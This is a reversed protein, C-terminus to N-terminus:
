MVKDIRRAEQSSRTNGPTTELLVALGEFEDLQPLVLSGARVHVDPASSGFSAIVRWNGPPLAIEMNAFPPHAFSHVVCLVRRGDLAVRRLAQWGGPHRWSEGMSSFLRSRGQAIVPAAARYFEQAAKLRGMQGDALAAVDGSIAMRGLFTAALSYDLRKVSDSQRLVAWVQTQRPLVVKHLNAAIVPIEPTEHADSFSGMACLAQMSPELRHGGSSCNEIVVEPLQRRIEGFFEQVAAIHQRLHEGPGDGRGAPGDVGAGLTDNYDVKLYGFGNDRLLGIVKGTLYERTWPDRFDWFRRPGVRLVQGDRRLHHDTQNWAQSGPNCVEFEFWIGPILGEARIADCTAKLGAPFARRNVLWDGNQQFGDGPREAWGDDIVLYRTGIEKLRRATAVVLDHTPNGWSSCWENFVTPLGDECAPQLGAAENQASTLAACVEQVDGEVCALVAQPTTFSEGPGVAKWWHGFERDALGGSVCLEDGRRFVEMQWSSAIGLQAGWTVGAVADELAVMPFFAQVPMSGLHGFRECVIGHGTWSRELHASEISRSEVRGEASWASRIRHMRLRGPADAPHFPTVGSFSFSALLDLIQPQRSLNCFETWVRLFAAGKEWRLFHTAAFGEKAELETTVTVAEANETVQQSTFKLATSAEGGRLTLGQGFAPTPSLDLGPGRVHLQVLSDPTRAPLPLFRAPLQAVAPEDLTRRKPVREAQRADPLFTFTAVGDPELVYEV